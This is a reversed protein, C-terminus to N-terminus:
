NLLKQMISDFILKCVDFKVNTPNHEGEQVRKNAGYVNHLLPHLPYALEM